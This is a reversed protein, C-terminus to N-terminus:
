MKTAANSEGIPPTASGVYKFFYLSAFQMVSAVEVITVPPTSDRGRGNARWGVIGVADIWAHVAKKNLPPALNSACDKECRM